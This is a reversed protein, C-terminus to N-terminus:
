ENLAGALPMTRLLIWGRAPEVTAFHVFLRFSTALTLLPDSADREATALLANIRTAIDDAVAGFLAECTAFHNYFSGRAVGAAAIM